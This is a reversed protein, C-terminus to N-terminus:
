VQRRRSQRRRRKGVQEVDTDVFDELDSDTFGIALAAREFGERVRQERRKQRSYDAYDSDESDVSYDDQGEESEGDESSNQSGGAAEKEMQERVRKRMEDFTQTDKRECHGYQIGELGEMDSEDSIEEDEDEDDANEMEEGDGENEDWHWDQHDLGDPQGWRPCGPFTWHRSDSRAKEGRVYYFSQGCHCRIRNCAETLQVPRDCRPCLQYEQGRTLGGLDKDRQRDQKLLDHDCNTHGLHATGDRSWYDGEYALGCRM